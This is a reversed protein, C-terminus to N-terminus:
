DGSELILRRSRGGRWEPKSVAMRAGINKFGTIDIDQLGAGASARLDVGVLADGRRSGSVKVGGAWSAGGTDIVVDRAGPRSVVDPLAIRIKAHIEGPQTQGGDLSIMVVRECDVVHDLVIDIERGGMVAVVGKFLTADRTDRQGSARGVRIRVARAGVSYIGTSRVDPLENISISVNQPAARANQYLLIGYCGGGDQGGGKWFAAGPAALRAIRITANRVNGVLAVAGKSHEADMLPDDVEVDLIEGGAGNVYLFHGPIRIDEAAPQGGPSAIWRCGRSFVNRIRRDPSLNQVNFWAASAFGEILCNELGIGVMDNTADFGLIASMVGGAYPAHDDKVGNGQLRVRRITIGSAGDAKFLHNIVSRGAVRLTTRTSGRGEISVHSPLRIADERLLRAADFLYTGSGLQITGGREAISALARRMATVNDLGPVPGGGFEELTVQSPTAGACASAILTAGGVVLARRSFGGIFPYGPEAARCASSYRLRNLTSIPKMRKEITVTHQFESAVM